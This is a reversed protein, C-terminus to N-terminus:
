TSLNYLIPIFVLSLCVTKRSEQRLELWSSLMQPLTLCSLSDACVLCKNRKYSEICLIAGLIPLRELFCKPINM